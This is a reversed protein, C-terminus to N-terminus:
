GSLRLSVSNDTGFVLDIILTISTRIVLCVSGKMVWTRSMITLSPIHHGDAQTLFIARGISSSVRESPAHVKIVNLGDCGHGPYLTNKVTRNLSRIAPASAISGLSYLYIVM